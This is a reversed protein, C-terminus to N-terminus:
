MKHATKFSFWALKIGQIEIWNKDNIKENMVTVKHQSHELESCKSDLLFFIIM